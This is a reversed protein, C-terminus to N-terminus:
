SDISLKVVTLIYIEKGHVYFQMTREISSVSNLARISLTKPGVETYVHGVRTTWTPFPKVQSDM